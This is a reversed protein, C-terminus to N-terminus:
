KELSNNFDLGKFYESLRTDIRNGKGASRGSIYTDLYDYSVNGYYHIEIFCTILNKKM